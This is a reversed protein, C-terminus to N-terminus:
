SAKSKDRARIAEVLETLSESFSVRPVWGFLRQARGSNLVSYQVTPRSGPQMRIDPTAKLHAACAQIVELITMGRGSSANVTSNGLGHESTVVAAVLNALDDAAFYDRVALGNGQVTIPSDNLLHHLVTTVLGHTGVSALQYRGIPNAPRIVTFRRLGARGKGKWILPLASELCLKGYGYADVPKCPTDENVPTGRTRNGYVAGGSSMYVIHTVDSTLLSEFLALHPAINAVWEHEPSNAPTNPRTASACLVVTGLGAFLAPNYADTMSYRTLPVHDPGTEPQEPASRAFARLPLGAQALRGRITQGIFGSSGIIGIM